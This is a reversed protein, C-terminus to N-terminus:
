NENECWVYIDTIPRSSRFYNTDARFFVYTTYLVFLPNMWSHLLHSRKHTLLQIILKVMENFFTSENLLSVSNHETTSKDPSVSCSCVISVDQENFQQMFDKDYKLIHHYESIFIDFTIFMFVLFKHTHLNTGKIEGSRYREDRTGTSRRRQYRSSSSSSSSPTVPIRREGGVAFM